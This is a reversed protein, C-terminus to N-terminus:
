ERSLGPYTTYTMPRRHEMCDNPSGPLCRSRTKLARSGLDTKDNSMWEALFALPHFSLALLKRKFRRPQLPVYEGERLLLRAQGSRSVPPELLRLACAPPLSSPKPASNGTSGVAQELSDNLRADQPRVRQPSGAPESRKAAAYYAVTLVRQEKSPTTRRLPQSAPKWRKRKSDTNCHGNHM